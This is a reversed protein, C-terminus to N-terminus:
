RAPLFGSFEALVIEIPIAFGLGEFKYTIKKFTNVGLVQGNANVLPGGSNGPYIKANTQLYGNEFGSFVGSTVSNQLTAPSGIAYVENSQALLRTQGPTLSPTQYGDIKLLALDYQGSVKILRAYLQTGDALIITFTQSLNAVSNRYQYESRGDHFEKKGREYVKSRQEFDRQWTKYRKLHTEYDEQYSRRRDPNSEAEVETKFRELRKKYAQLRRREEELRQDYYDIRDEAQDIKSKAKAQQQETVRVVHKNTIIYGDTTIFFGSGSGMSTKVTLTAAAAQEIPNRAPYDSLLPAGGMSPDPARPNSEAIKQGKEIAEKPPTDTYYWVGDKQYRYLESMAPMSTMLVMTTAAVLKPLTGFFLRHLSNMGHVHEKEPEHENPYLNM